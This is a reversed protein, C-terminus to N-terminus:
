KRVHHTNTTYPTIIHTVTTAIHTFLVKTLENLATENREMGNWEMGCEMNCLLGIKFYVHPLNNGAHQVIAQSSNTLNCKCM